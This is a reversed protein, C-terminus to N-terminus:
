ALRTGHMLRRLTEPDAAFDLEIKPQVSPDTSALKLRGRGRPLMLAVRLAAVVPVGAAARLTLIGSIDGHTTLVLQMDDPCRSGEATLTAM